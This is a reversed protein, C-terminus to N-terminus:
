VGGNVRLQRSTKTVHFKSLDDLEQELKEKDLHSRTVSHWSALKKKGYQLNKADGLTEKISMKIEGKRKELDTIQNQIEKYERCLDVVFSDAEVFKDDDTEPFERDIDDESIAPPMKKPIVYDEWFRVEAEELRKIDDERRPIYYVRLEPTCRFWVTLYAFNYDGCMMYHVVQWYYDVPVEDTMAEGWVGYPAQATKVENVGWEGNVQIIRDLNGRIFDYKKHTIPEELVRTIWNNRFAAEDAVMDESLEGWRVAEFNEIPREVGEVKELYLDRLTGWKSVGLAKAADSGGISFQREVRQDNTLM